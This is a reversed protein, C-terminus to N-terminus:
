LVRSLTTSSADLKHTSRLKRLSQRSNSKLDRKLRTIQAKTIKNRPGPKTHYAKKEQVQSKKVIRYFVSKSLKLTDMIWKSQKGCELYTLVQQQLKPDTIKGRTM